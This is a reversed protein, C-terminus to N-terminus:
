FYIGHQSLFWSLALRWKQSPNLAFATPTFADNNQRERENERQSKAVPCFSRELFFFFCLFHHLMTSDAPSKKGPSLLSLNLPLLIVQPDTASGHAVLCFSLSFIDGWTQLGVGPSKPKCAEKCSKKKKPVLMCHCNYLKEMLAEGARSPNKPKEMPYCNPINFM